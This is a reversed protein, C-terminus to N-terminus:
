PIESTQVASDQQATIPLHSHFSSAQEVDVFVNEYKSIMAHIPPIYGALEQSLGLYLMGKETIKYRKTTIDCILLGASVLHDCYRNVRKYNLVLEQM